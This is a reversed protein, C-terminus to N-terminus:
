TACPRRTKPPVRCFRGSMRTLWAPTMGIIKALLKSTTGMDDEEAPDYITASAEPQAQTRTM